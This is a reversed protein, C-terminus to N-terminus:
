KNKLMKNFLNFPTDKENRSTLPYKKHSEIKLKKRLKGLSMSTEKYITKILEFSKNPIEKIKPKTRKTNKSNNKNERPIIVRKGKNNNNNKTNKIEKNKNEEKKIIKKENTLNGNTSNINITISPPNTNTNTTSNNNNNISIQKHIGIKKNNNNKLDYSIKEDKIKQNNSNITKKQNNLNFQIKSVKHQLYSYQNTNQSNPNLSNGKNQNNLNNNSNKNIINKGTQNSYTNVRKKISTLKCANGNKNVKALNLNLNINYIPSVLHNINNKKDSIINPSTFLPHNFIEHRKNKNPKNHCKSNNGSENKNKSNSNERKSNNMINKNSSHIEFPIKKKQILTKFRNSNTRNSLQNKKPYKVIKVINENSKLKNNICIIHKSANARTTSLHNNLNQPIIMNTTKEKIVKSIKNKVTKTTKLYNNSYYNSKKQRDSINEKTKIEKEVDKKKNITDLNNINRLDLKKIELIKGKKPLKAKNSINKYNIITESVRENHKIENKNSYKKKKEDSNFISKSIELDNFVIEYSNNRIRNNVNFFSDKDFLIYKEDNDINHILESLNNLNNDNQINVYSNITFTLTNDSIDSPNIIHTFEFNEENENYELDENEELIELYKKKKKVNKIMIKVIDEMNFYVPSFLTYKEYYGTIKPLRNISEHKYYFRQLFDNGSNDFIYDKLISVIHKKEDYIIDNIVKKNYENVSINYKLLHNNMKKEIKNLLKEKNENNNQEKIIKHSRGRSASNHKQKKNINNNTNRNNSQNRSNFNSGRSNYMSLKDELKKPKIERSSRLNQM